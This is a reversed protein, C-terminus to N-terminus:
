LNFPNYNGNEKIWTFYKQQFENELGNVLPLGYEIRQVQARAADGGRNKDIIIGLEKQGLKKKKRILLCKNSDYGFQQILNFDLTNDISEGTEVQHFLSEIGRFINKRQVVDLSPYDSSIKACYASLLSQEAEIIKNKINEVM